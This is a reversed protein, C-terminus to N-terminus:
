FKWNVGTNSMRKKPSLSHSKLTSVNVIELSCEKDASQFEEEDSM